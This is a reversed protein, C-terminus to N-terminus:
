NALVGDLPTRLPNRPEINLAREARRAATSYDGCLESAFRPLRAAFEDAASIADGRKATVDLGHADKM